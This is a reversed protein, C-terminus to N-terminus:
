QVAVNKSYGTDITLGGGDIPGGAVLSATMQPGPTYAELAIGGFSQGTAPVPPLYALAAPPITYSGPAAPVYCNMTVIRRSTGSTTISNVQIYVQDFGAGTWTFTLPKTRDVFTISDWNTGQFSAPYIATATFPGVMAGGTGSLTYTAGPVIGSAPSLLYVPGSPTTTATMASGAAFNGGSFPLRSGADLLAKPSAPDTGNTAFTRDYIECGNFKVGIRTLVFQTSNSQSFFGSLSDQPTGTPGSSIRALAFNGTVIDMQADLKTLLALSFFKDVCASQGEAAIAISTLNSLEGGASVQVPAFCDLQADSPLHFNIQWLGPYGPVTGAYGPTIQQTGVLVKFNGAATQDGSSGGTDNALDAGGGTGWLVIDDGPHAPTLIWHYGGFDVGGSTYRVLSLGGNVSSITAQSPGDGLGNSTAIGMSRAVITVSQPASTQQNYTVRVNYTGPAITSPLLGGVQTSLTYWVRATIAAGGAAATFSVSTGALADPYNPGTATTLAAPGLGSGYIVWVVGPALKQQDGSTNLIRGPTIAPQAFIAGASLLLLVSKTM